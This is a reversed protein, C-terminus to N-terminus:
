YIYEHYYKGINRDITSSEGYLYNNDGTTIIFDPSWSKVLAAVGAENTNDVGYDGIVAFHASSPPYGKFILPLYISFSSPGNTPIPADAALSSGFPFALVATLLTFGLIKLLRTTIM